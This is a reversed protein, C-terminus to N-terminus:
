SHQFVQSGRKGGNTPLAPFNLSFSKPLFYIKISSVYLASSRCFLFDSSGLNPVVRHFVSSRRKSGLPGNGRGHEPPWRGIVLPTKGWSRRKQEELHAGATPVPLSTEQPTQTLRLMPPPPAVPAQRDWSTRRGCLLHQLNLYDGLIGTSWQSGGSSPHGSERAPSSSCTVRPAQKEPYLPSGPGSLCGALYWQTAAM